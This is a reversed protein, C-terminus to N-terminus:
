NKIKYDTDLKEFLVLHDKVMQEITYKQAINISHNQMSVIDQKYILDITTALVEANNSEIIYGNKADDILSYAAGVRDTAIVALGNAIAENVVLGWVDGVGRSPLVFVDSAKLFNFVDLKNKKGLFHVKDLANREEAFRQLDLTEVGDGILLLEVDKTNIKSIADILVDVGKLRILRGVYVVYSKHTNLNLKQKLNSKSLDSISESDIVDLKNISTFHYEFVKSLNAGYYLLTKTANIGSSLYYSASNILFKKLKTKFFGKTVFGGDTNLVFDINFIKFYLISIIEVLKAYGGVVFIENNNAKLIKFLDFIALLKTKNFLITYNYNHIIQDQKWGSNPMSENYYVVNLDTFKSLENFFDVRYPSPIYTLFIIKKKIQM